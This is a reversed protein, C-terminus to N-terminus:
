RQGYRHLVQYRNAPNGTSDALVFGQAQWDVPGCAAPVQASAARRALTVHPRYPRPDVVVGQAQLANGLRHHLSRLPAPTQSACVVALGQRWLVPADLRLTFADMDVDAAAAIDPLRHAAVAGIFHLTVHWDSPALLTCGAPWTWRSAHEALQQVTAADPWLALFIRHVHTM